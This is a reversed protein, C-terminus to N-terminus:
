YLLKNGKECIEYIEDYKKKILVTLRETEKKVMKKYVFYPLIWGIFAPIACVISLFIMPPQATVAFVSGAMFATGILGIMLSYMTGKSTKSQELMEIEKVCAEFNRQLRTLEMKNLIKRNRKLRITMKPIYPNVDILGAYNEDQEWGFCEYGDLLFSVQERNTVVEKYDYAMFQKKKEQEM